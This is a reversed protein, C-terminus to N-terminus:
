RARLAVILDPEDAETYFVSSGCDPCFHFIHEKRDAEDSTRSYDDFRGHVGVRTECFAQRCASPAARAPQCAACNCISVRRPEGEVALRLQGCHCAAQRSPM